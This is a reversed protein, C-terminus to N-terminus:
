ELDYFRFLEEEVKVEKILKWEESNDRLDQLLFPNNGIRITTKM